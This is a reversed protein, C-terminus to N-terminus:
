DTVVSAKGSAFAKFLDGDPVMALRQEWPNYRPTFHTDVDFSKPLQRAVNAILLKRMLKPYKQCLKFLGRATAINKRRVIPFAREHGLVKNLANTIPDASPVSLVYSPSRQLMTIHGAKDAMS